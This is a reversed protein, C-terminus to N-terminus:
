RGMLTRAAPLYTRGIRIREEDALVAHWVGMGDHSLRSIRDRRVITSRHLRIFQAPDLRRELETITQHLLFSRAGVHLRMYDREAEIRDIDQSAIRIMESRHPVWFEQAHDSTTPTDRPARRREVVRAVARSLRDQAVPKLLYDTAALDFAAVAYQDFATCFIIAPRKDLKEIARAVGIGDLGPMAIDLLIMEPELADLLRLAAEGDSATGVLDIMPERACLIQLREIALPEDDVVLTRISSDSLM